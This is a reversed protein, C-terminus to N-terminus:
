RSTPKSTATKRKMSIVMIKTGKGEGMYFTSTYSNEQHAIEMRSPVPKGSIHDITNWRMTHLKTKPDYDGEMIALATSMSDIWTGLYKKKAPDYGVCGTGVYPVGGFECEFRSQTWFGGVAVVTEKAAVPESPAGPMFSTLTGEWNGVSKLIEKHEKQPMPMEQPRFAPAMAATFVLGITIALTALARRTKFM